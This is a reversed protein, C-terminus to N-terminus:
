IILFAKVIFIGVIITIIKEMFGNTQITIFFKYRKESLPYLAEIGRDTFYDVLHSLMGVIFAICIARSIYPKIMVSLVIAMIPLIICSHTFKRHPSLGIGFLILGLVTILDSQFNNQYILYGGIGCYFAIKGITNKIPLLRQNIFSKPHDADPILAAIAGVGATILSPEIGLKNLVLISAAAGITMHTKGMM